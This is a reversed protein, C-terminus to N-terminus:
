RVDSTLMERVDDEGVGLFEAADFALRGFGGGRLNRSDRFFLTRETEDDQVAQVDDRQQDLARQRGIRRRTESRGRGTAWNSVGTRANGSRGTTAQGYDTHSSRAENLWLLLPVAAQLAQLFEQDSPQVAPGISKSLTGGQGEQRTGRYEVQSRHQGEQNGAAEQIQHQYLNGGAVERNGPVTFSPYKTKPKHTGTHNAIVLRAGQEFLLNQLHCMYTHQDFVVPKHHAIGFLGYVTAGHLMKTVCYRPRIGQLYRSIFWWQLGSGVLRQVSNSCDGLLMKSM